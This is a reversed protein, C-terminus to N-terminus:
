KIGQDIILLTIAASIEPQEYGSLAILVPQGVLCLNSILLGVFDVHLVEFLQPQGEM